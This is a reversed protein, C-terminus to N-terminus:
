GAGAGIGGGILAGKGGGALAGIAGGGIAGVGVRKATKHRKYHTYPSRQVYYHHSPQVYHHHAYYRHTTQTTQSQNLAGAQGAAGLLLGLSLAASLIQRRMSFERLILAALDNGKKLFSLSGSISRGMALVSVSVSSRCRRWAMISTNRFGRTLM